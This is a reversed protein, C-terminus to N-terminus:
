LATSLGVAQSLAGKIIFDINKNANQYSINVNPHRNKWIRFVEDAFSRGVADVGKFDLIITKFKELGSFIRRAQSRSIYDEGIKYLKVVVKTKAFSFLGESYKRFIKNLDTKSKLGIIFTAKTGKINKTDKIFIDDLINNFILKKRSSQITLMDGAKSAFFIGEGTHERPATTQKGKLLDQIAELENKLGRKRIIHNFIGVGKDIIEFIVAEKDKKMLVEITKSTSHEIANNLLETFAYDLIQRINRSSQLFIGTNKKIDDLVIDESLEKNKLLRRATLIQEKEKLVVEKVAPVYRAKNARGFLVIKGEDKLEQFFRSVYARSFGTIKVIDAVKVEGDKSLKKLILSKIDM